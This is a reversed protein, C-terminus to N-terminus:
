GHSSFLTKGGLLVTDRHPSTEHLPLQGGRDPASAECPQSSHEYVVFDLLGQGPLDKGAEASTSEAASWPEAMCCRAM